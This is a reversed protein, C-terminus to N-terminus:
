RCHGAVIDIGHGRQDGGVILALRPPHDDCELVLHHFIELARKARSVAGVLCPDPKRGVRSRPGCDVVQVLHSAHQARSANAPKPSANGASMWFKSSARTASAVAKSSSIPLVFAPVTVNASASSAPRSAVGHCNIRNAVLTAALLSVASM